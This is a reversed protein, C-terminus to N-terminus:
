VTPGPREGSAQNVTIFIRGIYDKLEGSARIFAEIVSPDYISGSAAVIVDTADDLSLALHYPRTVTLADLADAVAFIRAGVPIDDGKLGRPYGSGDFHEHHTRIIEAAKKFYGIRGIIGYGIEPHKQMVAQEEPTLPGAKLLVSDPVGIKGLDHLLAGCYLDVLGRGRLGYAKGIVLSFETVRLSHNGVEHERADIATVFAELTVLYATDISEVVGDLYTDAFYCHECRCTGDGRLVYRDEELSTGCHPCVQLQEASEKM